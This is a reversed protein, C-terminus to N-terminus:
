PAYPGIVLDAHITPTSPLPSLSVRRAPLSLFHSSIVARAPIEHMLRLSIWYMFGSTVLCHRRSGNDGLPFGVKPTHPRALATRV